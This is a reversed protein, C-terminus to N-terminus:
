DAPERVTLVQNAAVDRLTQVTGSPWYYSSAKSAPPLAWALTYM